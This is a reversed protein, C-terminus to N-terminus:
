LNIHPIDHENKKYPELDIAEQKLQSIKLVDKKTIHYSIPVLKLLGIPFTWRLLKWEYPLYSGFNWDAAEM